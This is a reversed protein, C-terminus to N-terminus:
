SAQKHSVDPVIKEVLSLMLWFVVGHLFYNGSHLLFAMWYLYLGERHIPPKHRYLHYLLWGIGMLGLLGFESLLRLLGSGADQRNYHPYLRVMELPQKAMVANYASEHSGPGGGTLPNTKLQHYTVVSNIYIAMSSSNAEKGEEHAWEPFHSFLTITDTIRVRLGHYYFFGLVMVAIVPLTRIFAWRLGKRLGFPLLFAYLGFVMWGVASFTFFMAMFFVAFSAWEWQDAKREVIRRLGYAMAPLLLMALSVPEECMSYCRYLGLWGGKEPTIHQGMLHLIQEPLTLVAPIIALRYYIAFWGEHRMGQRRFVYYFFSILFIGGGMQKVYAVLHYPQIWYTYFTVLLFGAAIVLHRMPPFWSRDKQFLGLWLVGLYFIYHYYLDFLGLFHQKKVSLFISFVALYPVWQWCFFRIHPSPNSM